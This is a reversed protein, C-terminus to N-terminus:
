SSPAQIMVLEQNFGRMMCAKKCYEIQKMFAEAMCMWNKM